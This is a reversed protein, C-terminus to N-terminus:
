PLVGRKVVKITTLVVVDDFDRHSNQSGMVFRRERIPQIESIQYAQLDWGMREDERRLVLLACGDAKICSVEHERKLGV